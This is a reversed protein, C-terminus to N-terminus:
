QNNNNHKSKNTNKQSHNKSFFEVLLNNLDNKNHSNAVQKWFAKPNELYIVVLNNDLYSKKSVTPTNHLTIAIKKIIESIIKESERDIKKKIKENRTITIDEILKKNNNNSSNLSHIKFIEMFDNKHKIMEELFLYNAGWTRFMKLTIDPHYEALFNNIDIPKILEPQEDDNDKNMYYFLFSHPYKHKKTADSLQKMLKIAIPDKLVCQNLVGKKGIFEIDLENTSKFKLHKPQLTSVGHSEHDNFYKINGIRFHCNDLIYIVLAIMKEKTTIPKAENLLLARIDQRIKTIHKGFNKLAYYKNRSQKAVFSKNYIYQTRGKDDVGIAQLYNNATLSIKVDKYAPPINLKKFRTLSENDSIQKNKTDLYVFRKKKSKPNVDIRKIKLKSKSNSM